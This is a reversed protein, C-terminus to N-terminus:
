GLLEGVVAAIERGDARGKLEANLRPMVKGLDRKSTAGVEAIVARAREAIEERSMQRPLYAELVALEAREKAVLEPRKAQEYGAISDQRQKVQRKIVEIVEAEGFPNATLLGSVLRDLEPNPVKKGDVEIEPAIKAKKILANRHELEANQVASLLFRLTDRRLTDGARMADKVDAQIQQQLSM